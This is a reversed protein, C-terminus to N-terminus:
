LPVIADKQFEEKKKLAKFRKTSTMSSHKGVEKLSISTSTTRNLAKQVM